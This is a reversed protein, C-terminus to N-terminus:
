QVAVGRRELLREVYKALVDAELNVEVGPELAGLTTEALTHPVLAVAFGREDLEAVTLSVGEVAISGKEVCLGLVEEPVDLWVRRGEGEPEVTRVRGVGDVHGQVYHGGLPEGARLAPELNVRAGEGLRGLATRRLSEPVADFALTGGRVETATLCCGNISVSDGIRTDRAVAPAEILLRIGDEGGRLSAIRGLERVIGTFM